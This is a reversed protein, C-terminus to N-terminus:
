VAWESARDDHGPGAAAAIVCLCAPYELMAYSSGLGWSVM